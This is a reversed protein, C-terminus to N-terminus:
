GKVELIKQKYFEMIEVMSHLTLVIPRVEIAWEYFGCSKPLLNLPNDPFIRCIQPRKEYDSCLKCDNIKPCHYFYVEEEISEDLLKIYEPYIKEAEIKSKYPVFVSLFQTAFNDGAVKKACLEDISFESCALNCCVGCSVCHFKERYEFIQVWKKHIDPSIENKIMDLVAVQWLDGSSGKQYSDFIDGCGEPKIELVRLQFEEVSKLFIERYKKKTGLLQTSLNEM